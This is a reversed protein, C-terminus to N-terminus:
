KNMYKRGNKIVIGKYSDDVRQGALNYIGGDLVSPAYTKVDEIALVTPDELAPNAALSTSEYWGKDTFTMDKTQPTGSNNFIIHTPTATLTGYYCWQWVYRGDKHKGIKYCNEGPWINGTYNM